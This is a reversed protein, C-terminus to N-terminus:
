DDSAQLGVLKGQKDGDWAYVEFRYKKLGDMKLGEVFEQFHNMLVSLDSTEVDVAVVIDGSLIKVPEDESDPPVTATFWARFKAM